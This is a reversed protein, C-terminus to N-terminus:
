DHFFCRHRDHDINSELTHGDTEEKSDGMDGAELCSRNEDNFFEDPVKLM